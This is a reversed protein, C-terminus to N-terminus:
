PRRPLCNRCTRRGCTARHSPACAFATWRRTGHAASRGRGLFQGGEFISTERFALGDGSSGGILPIDGLADQITMTLLEERHSLGDVLFLAVQNIKEGLSRSDRTATAVLNRVVDRAAVPDFMDVDQFCHSALHFSDTPFAIASLSDEDYGRDTLEGSSTCGIVSVGESRRNIARALPDRDFRHSCFLMLGALPAEGLQEMIEDMAAVPSAAHSAAFGIRSALLTM